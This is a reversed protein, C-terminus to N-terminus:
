PSSHTLEKTSLNHYTKVWGKKEWRFRNTFVQATGLYGLHWFFARFSDADFISM